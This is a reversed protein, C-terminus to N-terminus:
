IQGHRPAKKNLFAFKTETCLIALFIIAFGALLQITLQEHCIIVSFLAGFPAELSMLVATTAPPTYKQGVAQLLLGVSTSLVILYAMSLVTDRSVSTPPAEFLLAWLLAMSGATLFQVASVAIPDQDRVAYGLALIHGAFFFGCALTLLDGRGMTFQGTLSTLGIGVICLLAAMVNYRDLSSKFLFKAMFPVIVCYVSTLFANKGPTTETLGYVQLIYATGFFLGAIIGGRLSKRNLLMLRRWFVASVLIGASLFRIALMWCPPLSNLANKMVVYGLGWILTAILLM